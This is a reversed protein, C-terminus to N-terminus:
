TIEKLFIKFNEIRCAILNFSLGVNLCGDRWSFRLFMYLLKLAYLKMILSIDMNFFYIHLILIRRNEAYRIALGETLRIM